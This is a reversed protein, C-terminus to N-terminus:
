GIIEEAKSNDGSICLYVCNGSVKLVPSELKTAQEPNYDTFTKKQNEIRTELATKIEAAANEDVAEFCDIEEPTGGSASVYIKCSTYKDASVGIIKQIKEETLETLEDDYTIDSKLKDATAAVDATETQAATSEAAPESSEATETDGCSAFTCGVVAATMITCIFKRFNM